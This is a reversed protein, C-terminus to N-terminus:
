SVNTSTELETSLEAILQDKLSNKTEENLQNGNLDTISFFDDAREGTTTIKAAHIILNNNQFVTGIKALLGPVDLTSLELSTYKKDREPLFTVITPHRFQRLKNPIPKAKPIPSDQNKLATM